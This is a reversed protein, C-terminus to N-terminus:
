GFLSRTTVSFVKAIANLHVDNNSLLIAGARTREQQSKSNDRIAMLQRLIEKDIIKMNLVLLEYEM